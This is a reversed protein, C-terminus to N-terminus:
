PDRKDEMYYVVSNDEQILRRTKAVEGGVEYPILLSDEDEGETAIDSLKSSECQLASCALSCFLYISFKLLDM